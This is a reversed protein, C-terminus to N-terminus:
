APETQPARLEAPVTAPRPPAPMDKPRRRSVNAWSALYFRAKGCPTQLCLRQWDEPICGVEDKIRLLKQYKAIKGNWLGALRERHTQSRDKQFTARFTHYVFDMPMAFNIILKEILLVRYEDHRQRVIDTSPNVPVLTGFKARFDL